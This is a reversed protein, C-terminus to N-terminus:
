SVRRISSLFSAKAESTFNTARPAPVFFFGNVPSTSSHWRPSHMYDREHKKKFFTYDRKKRKQPQRPHRLKAVSAASSLLSAILRRGLSHGM